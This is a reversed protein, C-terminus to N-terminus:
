GGAPRPRARGGGGAEVHLVRPKQLLGPGIPALRLVRYKEVPVLNERPRLTLHDRVSEGHDLDAELRDGDGGRSRAGSLPNRQLRFSTISSGILWNLWNLWNLVILVFIADDPRSARTTIM